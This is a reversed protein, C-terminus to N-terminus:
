GLGQKVIYSSSNEEETLNPTAKFKNLDFVLLPKESAISLAKKEIMGHNVKLLFIAMSVNIEKGGFMGGNILHVKQLMKLRAVEDGFEKYNKSWENITDDDVGLELALGEVTPLSMQEIGSKNLYNKAKIIMEDSYKLM